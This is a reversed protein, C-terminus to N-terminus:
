GEFRSMIPVWGAPALLYEDSTIPITLCDAMGSMDLTRGNINITRASWCITLQRYTLPPRAEIPSRYAKKRKKSMNKSM